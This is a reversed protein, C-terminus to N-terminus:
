ESSIWESCSFTEKTVLHARNFSGDEVFMQPEDPAGASRTSVVTPHSVNTEVFYIASDYGVRHQPGYAISCVGWQEVETDDRGWNNESSGQLRNWWRCDSCPM